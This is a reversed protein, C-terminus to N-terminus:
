SWNAEEWTMNEVSGMGAGRWGRELGTKYKETQTELEMGLRERREEAGFEWKTTQDLDQM